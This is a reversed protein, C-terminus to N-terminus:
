KSLMRGSLNEVGQRFLPAETTDSFRRKKQFRALSKEAYM